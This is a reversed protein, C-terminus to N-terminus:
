RERRPRSPNSRMVDAPHRGSTECVRARLEAVVELAISM